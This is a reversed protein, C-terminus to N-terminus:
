RLCELHSISSLLSYGIVLRRIIAVIVVDLHCRFYTIGSSIQTSCGDPVSVLRLRWQQICIPHTRYSLAYASFVCCKSLGTLMIQVYHHTPVSGGTWVLLSEDHAYLVPELVGLNAIDM